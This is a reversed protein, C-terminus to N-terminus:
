QRKPDIVFPKSKDILGAKSLVRFSAAMEDNLKPLESLKCYIKYIPTPEDQTPTNRMNTFSRLM